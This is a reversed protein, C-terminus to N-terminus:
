VEPVDIIVNGLSYARVQIVALLSAVISRMAIRELKMTVSPSAASGATPGRPPADAM